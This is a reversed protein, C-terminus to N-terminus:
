QKRSNYLLKVEEDTIGRSLIMAEAIEGNLYYATSSGYRGITRDAFSGILNGTTGLSGMYQGDIYTKKTSGDFTFGVHHWNGDTLGSGHNSVFRGGSTYLGTRLLGTYYISIELYQGGFVIHYTGAPSGTTKVWAFASVQDKYGLDNPLAIYDSTGNFQLTYNLGNLQNTTNWTAGYITGQNENGSFDKIIIGKAEEFYWAGAIISGLQNEISGTYVKLSSERARERVDFVGILVIGTLIAIITIVVILELITFGTSYRSQLERKESNLLTFSNEKSNKFM